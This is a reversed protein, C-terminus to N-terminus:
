REDSGSSEVYDYVIKGSCGSHWNQDYNNESGVAWTAITHYFSTEVNVDVATGSFVAHALYTAKHITVSKLSVCDEFAYQEINVVSAPIVVNKLMKCGSFAYEEIKAISSPITVSELADCGYFAYKSIADVGEAIVATKLSKCNIFAKVWLDEDSCLGKPVTISKLGSNEFVGEDMFALSDPLTITELKPCDKFIYKGLTILGSPLNVQSLEKCGMFVSHVSTSYSSAKVGISLDIWGIHYVSEPITISKLGSYAFASSRITTLSEPLTISELSTCGYFMEETIELMNDPLTVNNLSTCGYFLGKGITVVTSPIVVTELDVMDAFAYNGITELTSPLVLTKVGRLGRLSQAAMKKVGEPIELVESGTAGMLPTYYTEFSKEGIEIDYTTGAPYAIMYGTTIEYIAGDILEYETNGSDIIFEKLNFCNGFAYYRISTVSAPIVMYEIGSGYFAGEGINTVTEPLTFSTLSTCNYFASNAVETIKTAGNVKELKTCNYFIRLPIKTLNAPLTVTTLEACNEFVHSTTSNIGGLIDAKQLYRCNSFAHSGMMYVNSSVTVKTFATNEFANAGIVSLSQPLVFQEEGEYGVYTIKSLNTCNKFVENGIVNTNTSLVVETLNACNAFTGVAYGEFPQVSGISGNEMSIYVVNNPIVVRSIATNEFTWKGLYSIVDPLNLQTISTCNRFMADGLFALTPRQDFKIEGLNVCSEFIGEGLEEFSNPLTVTTFQTNKFAYNGVIKVGNLDYERVGSNMFARDGIREVNVITDNRTFVVKTLSTAGEFLSEPLETINGPITFVGNSESCLSTCGKFAGIGFKNFGSHLNVTTLATCGAFMYDPMETIDIPLDFTKLSTCNAFMHDGYAVTRNPLTISVLSSCNSFVGNGMEFLASSPAFVVEKLSYCNQFAYDGIRTVSAPIVVKTINIQNAFAKDSIVTVGEPIIIGRGDDNAEKYSFYITTGSPSVINPLDASVIYSTNEPSINIEKLGVVGNLALDLGAIVSESVTISTLNACGFFIDKQLVINKSSKPFEFSSIASYRFAAYGIYELNSGDEFTITALYRAGDFSQDGIYTVSAPIELSEINASQFAYNGINTLQSGQEFEMSIIGAYQFANNGIKKVSAPIKITALNRCNQFMNPGLEEIVSGEEFIVKELNACQYFTNAKGSFDDTAFVQLSKPLYIEKLRSGQFASHGITRLRSGEAFTVKEINTNRFVCQAISILRAPFHIEKLSYCNVFPSQDSLGAALTLNLADNGEQFIVRSLKPCDEFAMYKVAEVTNPIVVEVLNTCNDFLLTSVEKIGHPLSVKEVSYCDQFIKSGLTCTATVESFDVIKIHLSYQFAFSWVFTVTSPVTVKGNNGKNARPCFILEVAEGKTNKSYLVGDITAYNANGTAVEITELSICTMFTASNKGSSKLEKLTSPLSIYKLSECNAFALDGITLTGEPITIEKLASYRFVAEGLETVRSPLILSQLKYLKYFARDNIVLSKTTTAGSEIEAFVIEKLMICDRFADSGITQINKSIVVKTLNPKECFVGNPLEIVSDPMVYTGSKHSPFFILMTKDKNFLVEDETVYYPNNPHVNIVAVKEGFADGINNIITEEGITVETVDSSYGGDANLFGFAGRKIRVEGVSNLTVKCLNNWGGFAHYDVFVLNAPLVVETPPNVNNGSSGAWFAHDYIYLEPDDKKGTFILEELYLIRRFAWKEIKQVYGPITIKTLKYCYQFADEGIVTVGEPITYAGDTAGNNGRLGEPAYYAKNGDDVCIIGDKWTYTECGAEVTMTELNACWKFAFVPFYSLRKPFNIYKLNPSKYFADEGITLDTAEFDTNEAIFDFGLQPDEPTPLFVLKELGQNEYFASAAITSVSSPLHLEVLNSYYKFVNVPINKVGYPAIYVGHKNEPYYKLEIGTYPNFYYLVGEHSDYLREHNGEVTYINVAELKTCGMFASGAQKGGSGMEILSVTDPINITVLHDCYQFASGEVTTVPLGNYTVPITVVDTYTIFVGKSVSYAKGENITNFTLVEAWYAYLKIPSTFMWDELSVGHNDTLKVGGGNSETYWGVFVKIVEAHTPVPITFAKGYTVKTTNQSLNGGALELELTYIAPAWQAYLVLNSADVLTKETYEDGNEYASWYDLAYGAVATIDEPLNLKDGQALYIADYEKLASLSHNYMLSIKYIDIKIEEWTSQNNDEDFYSVMVSHEGESEFSLAFSNVNGIKQESGGDVKVAYGSAGYVHHWSVIGDRYSVKGTLETAIDVADGYISDTTGDKSVSKVYATIGNSIDIDEPLTFYTENADYEVDNIKVKYSVAGEVKNWTLAGKEFTVKEPAAITTKNYVFEVTESDNYGKAMATVTVWITGANYFKFSESRPDNVIYSGVRKLSFKYKEANEVEDWVIQETAEDVRVNQPADLTRILWFEDSVSSIYGDASATVVFKIGEARMGCDGFDYYNNAGLDIVENMHAENGCEIALSYNTANPVKNFTLVTGNAEFLCVKSLGKNKYYVTSFNGNYVVEVTYEGAPQESFDYDYSIQSTSFFISSGGKRTITLSYERGVGKTTWSVGNENVSVAVGESEYVAFLTINQSLVQGNYQCTLKNKDNYDSMWWGIFGSKSGRPLNELVGAANTLIPDLETEGDMLTATFTYEIEPLFKAYLTKTGTVAESFDYPTKLGSDEYWGLFIEGTKTPDEPRQLASGHQVTAPSVDSGGNTDFTVTYKKLEWSAKLTISKKIKTSEFDFVNGKDDLWGAFDYNELTPDAPKELHKGEKVKVAEVVSGGNSDFTVTFVKDSCAAMVSGLLALVVVLMLSVILKRKQAM